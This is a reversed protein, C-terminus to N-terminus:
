ERSEGAWLWARIPQGSVFGLTRAFAGNEPPFPWCGGEPVLGADLLAQICAAAAAAGYGQRRYEPLTYAHLLARGEGMRYVACRSVEMGGAEAIGVPCVACGQAERVVRAASFRKQRFAAEDLRFPIYMEELMPLGELAEMLLPHWSEDPAFLALSTMRPFLTETLLERLLRPGEALSADGALYASSFPTVLLALRPRPCRDAYVTVDYQGNLAVQSQSHPYSGYWRFIREEPVVPTMM